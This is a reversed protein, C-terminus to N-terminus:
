TIATTKVTLRSEPLAKNTLEPNILPMTHHRNINAYFLSCEYDQLKEANDFEIWAYNTNKIKRAFINIIKIIRIM